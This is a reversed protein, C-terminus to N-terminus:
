QKYCWPCPLGKIHWCQDASYLFLNVRRVCTHKAREEPNRMAGPRLLSEDQDRHLDGQPPPSLRSNWKLGGGGAKSCARELPHDDLWGGWCRRLYFFLVPSFLQFVLCQRMLHVDQLIRKELGSAWIEKSLRLAAFHKLALPKQDRNEVKLTIFPLCQM